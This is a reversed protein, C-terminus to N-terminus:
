EKEKPKLTQFAMSVNRLRKMMEPEFDAAEKRQSAYYANDSEADKDMQEALDRPNNM